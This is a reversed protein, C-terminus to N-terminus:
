SWAVASRNAERTGAWDKLWLRARGGAWCERYAATIRRRALAQRAAFTQKDGAEFRDLAAAGVFEDLADREHRLVKVFSVLRPQQTIEAVQEDSDSGALLALAIALDPPVGAPESLGQTFDACVAVREDASGLRHDNLILRLAYRWNELRREMGQPSAPVDGFTQWLLGPCYQEDFDLFLLDRGSTTAGVAQDLDLLGEEVAYQNVAQDGLGAAEPLLAARRAAERWDDSYLGAEGSLALRAYRRLFQVAWAANGDLMELLRIRHGSAVDLLPTFQDGSPAVEEEWQRFMAVFISEAVDVSVGAAAVLRIALSTCAGRLVPPGHIAEQKLETLVATSVGGMLDDAAQLLLEPMVSTSDRTYADLVALTVSSLREPEAPDQRRFQNDRNLKRVIAEAAFFEFFTRHTFSFRAADKTAGTKSLIWARGSCHALLDRAAANAGVPDQGRDKLYTAILHVLQGEEMTHGAGGSQHFLLAIDRLIAEGENKFLNPIQIGRQPDWEHFMLAACRLYVERRSRPIFDYQRFLTCLLALMLPNRRLELLTRSEGMFRDVKINAGYQGFWREAYEQVQDDTYEELNLIRFVRQKFLSVEFGTRRTTCVIAAFPFREAFAHLQEVITRRQTADLIEDIGDVVLALAGIGLLDAVDEDTVAIQYDSELQLRLAELVSSGSEKLVHRSVLTVPLPGTGGEEDEGLRWKMWSTLTTKGVGPDGIIVARPRGSAIDVEDSASTVRGSVADSLSRDIYLGRFEAERGEIGQILFTDSRTARRVRRCEDLLDRVRRQRSPEHAIVDLRRLYEPQRDVGLSGFFFRHALADAINDTLAPNTELQALVAQQDTEIAHWMEGSLDAWNQSREACWDAAMAAFAEPGDFQELAKRDAAPLLHRVFSLRQLATVAPDQLFAQMEAAQEATVAMVVGEESRLALGTAVDVKLDPLPPAPQNAVKAGWRVVQFAARAGVAGSIM